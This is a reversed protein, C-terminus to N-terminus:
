GGHSAQIIAATYVDLEAGPDLGPASNVEFVVLKGAETLGIDVGGFDYGVAKVAKHAIARLKVRLDMGIPDVSAKMSPYQIDWGRSVTRIYPHHKTIKPQREGLLISKGLFSHVRFERACPVIETFYDGDMGDVMLDDGDVHHKKRALWGMHLDLPAELHFVPVPVSAKDLQQLQKLKDSGKFGGNLATAPASASGWNVVFAHPPAVEVKSKTM